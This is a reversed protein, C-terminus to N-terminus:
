KVLKAKLSVKGGKTEIRFDIASAGKEAKLREAQQEILKRFSDFKISPEGTQRRSAAFREYLAAVAAGDRAADAVRFEAGAPRAPTAAPRAEAKPPTPPPTLAQARLGHVGLPRGEELARLRKNWLENFTNFRATLTQYRFRETANRIDTNAHLRVLAEVRAQLASPPRREVGGFFKDWEIQLQRISAELREIDESLGM